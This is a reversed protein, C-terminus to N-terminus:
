RDILLIAFLLLWVGDLFHWYIAMLRVGPYHAWSYAQRQAFFLVLGLGVLGGIVHLGHLGTLMYFLFGYLHTQFTAADYFLWWGITQCILFVVALGATRWLWLVLQRQDGGRIARLARQITWSCGLLLLTSLWLLSPPAPAGAPPWEPTRLRIVVYGALSGAFLMSLSALFVAMGFPGAGPAPSKKDGEPRVVAGRRKKGGAAADNM